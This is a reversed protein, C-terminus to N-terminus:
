QGVLEWSSITQPDEFTDIDDDTDYSSQQGGGFFPGAMLEGRIVLYIHSMTQGKRVLIDSKSYKKYVM